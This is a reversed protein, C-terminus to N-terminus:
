DKQGRLVARIPQAQAQSSEGQSQSQSSEGQSQSQSQSQTKPPAAALLEVAIEDCAAHTEDVVGTLVEHVASPDLPQSAREDLWTELARLRELARLAPLGQGEPHIKSLGERARRVCHRVARPFRPEFILFTAVAQATATGRHSKMFAEFGYCARLLSLWLSVEVVPHAQPTASPDVRAATTFAHHHVDLIRATQGIRELMVGLWIFDLPADHLMTGRLLGQCLQTERRVHRYFGYRHEDFDSRAAASRIWLHLENISEWAELSVVERVSRANERAAAVSRELSVAVGEGFSLYEQVAEGDSFADEGRTAAFREREGATIVVPQWCQAPTLDSDLALSSTVQLLRAISEARELYRGFWFCHDAVRSIM